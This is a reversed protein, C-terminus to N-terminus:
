IAVCHLASSPVWCQPGPELKHARLCQAVISLLPKNLKNILSTSSQLLCVFFVFFVGSMLFWGGPFRNIAFLTLLDKAIPEPGWPGWPEKRQTQPNWDTVAPHPARLSSSEAVSGQQKGSWVKRIGRVEAKAADLSYGSDYALVSPYASSHIM